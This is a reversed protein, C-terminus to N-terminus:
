QIALPADAARSQVTRAVVVPVVSVSAAAAAATVVAIASGVPHSATRARPRTAVSSSRLV